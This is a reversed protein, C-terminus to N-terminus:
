DPKKWVRCIEKLRLVAAAEFGGLAAGDIKDLKELCIEAGKAADSGSLSRVAEHYPLVFVSREGDSVADGAKKFTAEAQALEGSGQLAVALGLLADASPDKACAQELLPRSRGFLRYYNLLLAQNVKATVFFADVKLAEVFLHNAESAQAWDEEGDGLLLLVGLNNLAASSKVDLLLAREYALKALIPKNDGLLLNGYDIWDKSTNINKGGRLLKERVHKLAGSKGESGGNTPIGAFKFGGRFGQARWPPTLRADALSDALGPIEPSMIMLETAKSYADKWTARARNRLPASVAELGKKFRDAVEKDNRGSQSRPPPVSDIEDAFKVAWSALRALASVGWPGGADVVSMYARSLPELFDLRQSLAKKLEAEPMQLPQLKVGREILEALRFRALAVFPSVQEKPRQGKVSAARKFLDRAQDLNGSAFYLEGLRVTCEIEFEQPGSMCFQYLKAAESENKANTTSVYSEALLLAVKWRGPSKPYVELYASLLAQFRPLDGVGGSIRAATVLSDPDGGERGLREFLKSSVEFKGHILASTGSNRIVDISRASKGSKKLWAVAVRETSEFDLVKMYAGIANAYSKESLDKQAAELALKEYGRGADDFNKNKEHRAIEDIKFRVDQEALMAKLKSGGLEADASMLATNGRLEKCAEGLENIADSVEPSQDIQVAGPAPLIDLYVQLWLRGGTVAQVSKPWRKIIERIRKVVEKKSKPYGALIQAAKLAAERGEPTEGLAEQLSTAAEVFEKEIRSPEESAMSPSPSSRGATKIGEGLSGLWLVAAEKSYRKDKSDVVHRYIESADASKGLARKVEALYMNIEPHEHRADERALFVTLYASYYTEAIGLDVKNGTKRYKGHHEVATRRVIAKLNQYSTQADVSLGHSSRLSQVRAIAERYRGRRLDLDVLKFMVRHYVDSDPNTKLLSEYVVVAKTPEANREYQKGLKELAKPYFDKDGAVTQFYSVAEDAMGAEMMFVAMDKLAEEKMSLFKEGSSVAVEIAQKMVEIARRYQKTRYYSWALRHLIRPKSENPSKKVATEYYSIAQRYQLGEFSSDGLERYAESVLPSQPYKRALMSYYTMSEQKNGLEKYNFGLFYYIRDLKSFPIGLALLEKCAKIGAVLDVRSNSHDIFKYEMGAPQGVSLRKEHVRGELIYGARYAEMYNEAMEYYLDARRNKAEHRSLIKHLEKIGKQRLERVKAEEATEVSRLEAISYGAESHGSWLTAIVIFAIIGLRHILSNKLVPM